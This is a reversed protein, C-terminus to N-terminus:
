VPLANSGIRLCQEAENWSVNEYYYSSRKFWGDATKVEFRVALPNLKLRYIRGNPAAIQYSVRVLKWTSSTQLVAILEEKKM